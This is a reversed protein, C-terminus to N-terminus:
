PPHAPRPEFLFVRGSQSPAALTRKSTGTIAAIQALDPYGDALYPRILAQLASIFSWGQFGAADADPLRMMPRSPVAACAALVAAEITVSSQPQGTLFRTNAYAEHAAACPRQRAVFGMQPPSWGPGAISRVTAVVCQLIMWEALCLFPNRQLTPLGCLIRLRGDDPEFRLTLASNERGGLRALVAIRDHGSPALLLARQMSAGMSGLSVRQAAQFGLTMLDRDRGMAALCELALPLSIYADPSSEIWGPLRSEALYRTVPVGSDRLTELYLNFYAARFIAPPTM